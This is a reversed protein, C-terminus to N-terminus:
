FLVGRGLQGAAGQRRLGIGAPGEGTWWLLLAVVAITALGSLTVGLALETVSDPAKQPGKTGFYSAVGAAWYAVILVVSVRLGLSQRRTLPAPVPATDPATEPATDVAFLM